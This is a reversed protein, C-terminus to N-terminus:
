TYIIRDDFGQLEFFLFGQHTTKNEKRYFLSVAEPFIPTFGGWDTNEYWVSKGTLVKSNGITPALRGKIFVLPCTAEIDSPIKVIASLECRKVSDIRAKEFLNNAGNESEWPLLPRFPVCHVYMRSPLTEEFALKEIKKKEITKIGILDSTLPYLHVLGEHM